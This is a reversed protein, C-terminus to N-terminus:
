KHFFNRVSNKMKKFVKSKSTGMEPSVMQCQHMSATSLIEADDQTMPRFDTYTAPYGIVTVSGGRFLGRRHIIYQPEVVVDAKQEILLEATASTKAAKVKGCIFPNWKWSHTHQAKEKSVNVNAVTMNVIQTDVLETSATHQVTTCSNMAILVGAVMTLAKKM